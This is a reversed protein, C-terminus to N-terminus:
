LPLMSLAQLDGNFTQLPMIFPSLVEAPLGWAEFTPLCYRKFDLFDFTPVRPLVLVLAGNEYKVDLKLVPLADYKPIKTLLALTCALTEPRRNFLMEPTLKAKNKEPNKLFQNWLSQLTEPNYLLKNFQLKANQLTKFTKELAQLDYPTRLETFRKGTEYMYSTVTDMFAADEPKYDNGNWWLAACDIFADPNIIPQQTGILAIKDAYEKRSKLANYIAQVVVHDTWILRNEGVLYRPTYAGLIVVNGQDLLEQLYLTFNKWNENDKTIHDTIFTLKRNEPGGQVLSTKNKNALYAAFTTNKLTERNWRNDILIVRCEIDTQTMLNDIFDPWSLSYSYYTNLPYRPDNSVSDTTCTNFAIYVVSKQKELTAQQEKSLKKLEEQTRKEYALFKDLNKWIACHVYTFNTIM